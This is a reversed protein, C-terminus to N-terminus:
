VDELRDQAIWARAEPEDNFFEVSMNKGFLRMGATILKIFVRATLPASHVAIAQVPMQKLGEAAIKRVSGPIAEVESLDILIYVRDRGECFALHTRNIGEAEEETVTGLLKLYLTDPEEFTTLQNGLHILGGERNRPVNGADFAM